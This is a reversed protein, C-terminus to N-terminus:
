LYLMDITQLIWVLVPSQQLDPRQHVHLVPINPYDATNIIDNFNRTVPQPRGFNFAGQDAMGFNGFRGLTLSYGNSGLPTVAMPAAPESGGYGRSVIAPRFGAAQARQALWGVLPTKGSGGAVINGVVHDEIVGFAEPDRFVREAQELTEGRHLVADLMQLAARRAPLGETETM